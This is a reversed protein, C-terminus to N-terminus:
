RTAGPRVLHGPTRLLLQLDLAFSWGRAYEADLDLAESFSSKARASVQWLGTLGAPVLFRDFHHPEFLETEYPICPRPGVLSMDGRIVNLLQPLEDLSTNRLRRGFRTVAGKREPKFLGNQTSLEPQSMAAAVYERHEDEPTGVFMTRFKLMTFPRQGRGLRTQRFLVPGPSDLKIRLAVFVFLPLCLGLAISAVLLDLCRKALLAPRSPEISPLGVLPLGEVTHIGVAPGVVEFLRPVVDIQVDCDRLRRILEVMREEIENSFAVIVREVSLREVLEPLREIDGILALHELDDRRAIPADDVLGLLNLRYEPHNLLKRAVLQGVTGAGVIVTNQLYQARTRVLRRAVARGVVILLTAVLWFLLVRSLHARHAGLLWSASALLLSGVSTLSLIASVEDATSHDARVHDRAYLGYLGAGFIWLPLTPLFGAYDFLAPSAGGVGFASIVIVGSVALALADSLVLARRVLRSRRPLAGRKDKSSRAALVGPEGPLEPEAVTLPKGGTYAIEAM